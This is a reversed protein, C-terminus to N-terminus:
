KKTCAFYKKNRKLLIYTLSRQMLNPRKSFQNIHVNLLLMSVFAKYTLVLTTLELNANHTYLNAKFKSSTFFLNTKKNIPIIIININFDSGSLM